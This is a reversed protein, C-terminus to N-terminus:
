ERGCEPDGSGARCLSAADLQATAWAVEAADPVHRFAVQAMVLAGPADAVRYFLVEAQGSEPNRPCDVRGGAAALGALRVSGAPVVTAGPCGAAMRAAFTEAFSAAPVPAQLRLLTVMRTWAAVSEGRPVREEIRGNAASQRWAITFGDPVPASLWPLAAQGLLTSLLFALM